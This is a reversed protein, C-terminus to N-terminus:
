NKDDVDTARPETNWLDVGIWDSVVNGIFRSGLCKRSAYCSGISVMDSALWVGCESRLSCLARRAREFGGVTM